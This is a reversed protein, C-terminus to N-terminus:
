QKLANVLFIACRGFLLVVYSTCYFADTLSYFTDSSRFFADALLFFADSSCFFLMPHVTSRTQRVISRCMIYLLVCRDSSLLDHICFINRLHIFFTAPKHFRHDRHYHSVKMNIFFILRFGHNLFSFFNGYIQVQFFYIIDM